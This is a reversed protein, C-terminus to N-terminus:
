EFESILREVREPVGFANGNQTNEAVATRLRTAIDDDLYEIKELLGMNHKANQFSLSNEFLSVLALAMKNTTSPNKVLINFLRSVTREITLSSANLAQYKGIFGYPNIGYKIPVILKKRGFIVGVEQETWESSSFGPTLLVAMADATRLAYEIVDQWQQTPEISEHAVFGSVGYEQLEDAIQLAKNKFRSTHGIFLKLYDPEWCDPM